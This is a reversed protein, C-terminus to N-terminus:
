IIVWGLESTPLLSLSTKAFPITVSSGFQVQDSGSGVVTTVHPNVNYINYVTTLDGGLIVDSILPLTQTTAGTANVVTFLQDIAIHTSGSVVAYIGAAGAPGPPGPPGVNLTIPIFDPELQLTVAISPNPRVIVNISCPNSM